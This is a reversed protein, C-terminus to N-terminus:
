RLEVTFSYVRIHSSFDDSLRIPAATHACIATTIAHSVYDFRTDMCSRDHYGYISYDYQSNYGRLICIDGVRHNAQGPLIVISVDDCRLV